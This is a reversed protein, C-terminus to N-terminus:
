TRSRLAWRGASWATAARWPSSGCSERGCSRWDAPASPHGRLASRDPPFRFRVRVKRIALSGPFAPKWGADEGLMDRSAPLIGASGPAPELRKFGPDMAFRTGATRSASVCISKAFRWGGPLAPKWGADERLMDRSAPLIGASGPPPDLRKFRPDMAFRTEACHRCDGRHSPQASRPLPLGLSPRPSAHPQSDDFSCKTGLRRTAAATM